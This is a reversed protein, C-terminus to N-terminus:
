LKSFTLEIKIEKGQFMTNQEWVMQNELLSKIKVRSGTNVDKAKQGTTIKMLVEPVLDEATQPDVYWTFRQESKSCNNGDMVFQGTSNNPIFEWISNEFCNIQATNFLEVDFFGSSGPFAIATLNWEGKFVREVKNAKYASGCSSLGFALLFIFAYKM